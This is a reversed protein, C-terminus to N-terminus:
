GSAPRRTAAAGADSVVSPVVLEPVTVIRFGGERLEHLRRPLAQGTSAASALSDLHFEILTGDHVGTMM